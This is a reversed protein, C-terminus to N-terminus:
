KISTLLETPDLLGRPCPQNLEWVVPEMIESYLELHLMVMPLGKDKTLVQTVNGIVEGASVKQGVVVSPIIEGYVVIGSKGKVGCAWTDKWWPSAAHPGTFPTIFVVEGEEVALAEDGEQCYLDIGTHIDFRRVTGFAGAHPKLPISPLNKLPSHWMSYYYCLFSYFGLGLRYIAM